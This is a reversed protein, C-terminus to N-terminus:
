PKTATKPSDGLVTKVRNSIILSAPNQQWLFGEGTLKVQGNGLQINLPGPSSATRATLNYLCEPAEIALEPQGDEHFTELRVQRIIYREPGTPQASKGTVRMRIQNRNTYYETTSFGSAFLNVPLQALAPRSLLAFFLSACLLVAGGALGPLCSRGGRKQQCKM